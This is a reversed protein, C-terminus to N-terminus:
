LLNLHLLFIVVLVMPSMDVFLGFGVQFQKINKKLFNFMATLLSNFLNFFIKDNSNLKDKCPLLKSYLFLSVILIVLLIQFLKM